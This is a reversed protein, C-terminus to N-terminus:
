AKEDDLFEYAGWPIGREEHEGVPGALKVEVTLHKSDVATIVFTGPLGALAVRDGVKPIRKVPDRM